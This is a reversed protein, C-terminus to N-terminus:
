RRRGVPQLGGFLDLSVTRAANIVLPAVRELATGPKGVLSIAGLPGEPGRIAAAVCGIDPHNEGRELALGGRGRIRHLEAHLAALTAVTNPTRRDLRHGVLEDVQEPEIWALMAKGLATTHAPMTGGVRSPVAVSARGGLKDLYCVDAGALVGLHVVLGTTLMLDVLGPAAAARLDAHMRDEGGHALARRGLSYGCTSHELWSAQVLQDIIRHATSRPLHTMRSIQELTLRSGPGEFVDLILTMREIMSPPLKPAPDTVAISM